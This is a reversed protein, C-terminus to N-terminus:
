QQSRLKSALAGISKSLDKCESRLREAFSKDIYRRDEGLYLMSRVEGSSGKSLDLFHAFDKKTRREFGEAINNMTSVAARRLQSRFDLDRCKEFADYIENTLVRSRQWIQLDEFNEAFGMSNVM